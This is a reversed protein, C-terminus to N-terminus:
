LTPVCITNNGVMNGAALGRGPVCLDWHQNIILSYEVFYGPILRDTQSECKREKCLLWLEQTQSGLCFDCLFCLDEKSKYKM